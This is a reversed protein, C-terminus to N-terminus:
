CFTLDGWCNDVARDGLDISLLKLAEGEKPTGRNGVQGLPVYGNIVNAQPSELWWGARTSLWDYGGGNVSKEQNKVVNGKNDYQNGFRVDSTIWQLGDLTQYSFAQHKAGEGPDYKGNNNDDFGYQIQHFVKTSINQVNLKDGGLASTLLGLLGLSGNGVRLNVDHVNIIMGDILARDSRKMEVARGRLETIPNKKFDDNNGQTIGNGVYKGYTAVDYVTDSDGLFTNRLYGKTFDTNNDNTNKKLGFNTDSERNLFGASIATKVRATAFGLADYIGANINLNDLRIPLRGSISNVGYHGREVSANIFRQMATFRAQKQEDATGTNGWYTSNKMADWLKDIAGEGKGYSIVGGNPGPGYIEISQENNVLAPGDGTSMTGWNEKAGFRYGVIKRNVLSTPNQIALEIFPKDMVFDTQPGTNSLLEFGKGIQRTQKLKDM